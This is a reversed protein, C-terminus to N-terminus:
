LGLMQKIRTLLSSEYKECEGDPNFIWCREYQKDGTTVDISYYLRCKYDYNYESHPFPKKCHKCNNCIKM